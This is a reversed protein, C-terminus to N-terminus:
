NLEFRVYGFLERTITKFYPKLLELDADTITPSIAISINKMQREAMRAKIAKAWKGVQSNNKM